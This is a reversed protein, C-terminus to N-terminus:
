RRKLVVAHEARPSTAFARRTPAHFHPREQSAVAVFDLPLGRAADRLVADARIARGRVASDAVLFVARGHARLVRCTAALVRRSEAVWRRAAEDASLHAFARRSGLEGDAFPRADLGLWRLRLAHHEFYDYTAVYPPSTIVADVSADGISALQRADDVFVRAEPTGKPIKARLERIRRVLEQAKKEFLKAPYGAAIRRPAEATSTDARKRSVKVLIASLILELDARLTRDGTATIAARLGDLELLVHPEFLAVDERGYRRTAGARKERREDSFARVRTAEALLRADEAKTRARTKATALRVALPNLDTGVARRGAIMAEVLVTGSGAFPDLVVGGEPSFARVLKSATDPHMRAPYPHFGHIHAREPGEGKGSPAPAVDLADALAAACADDGEVRVEGGVHTLSRRRRDVTM